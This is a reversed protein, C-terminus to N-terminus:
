LNGQSCIRLPIFKSFRQITDVFPSKVLSLESKIYPPQSLYLELRVRDQNGLENTYHCDFRLTRHLIRPSRVNFDKIRKVKAEVAKIRENLDGKGFYDLDIDESFRSVNLKSLYVRNLATGGKLIVNDGFIEWVQSLLYSVKEDKSIYNLSLGTKVSLYRLM